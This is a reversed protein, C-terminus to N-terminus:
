MKANYLIVNTGDGTLLDFLFGAFTCSAHRLSGNPVTQHSNDYGGEDEREVEGGQGSAGRLPSPPLLAAM